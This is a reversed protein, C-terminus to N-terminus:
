QPKLLLNGKKKAFTHAQIRFCSMLKLTVILTKNLWYPFEEEGQIITWGKTDGEREHFRVQEQFSKSHRSSACLKKKIPYLSTKLFAENFFVNLVKGLLFELLNFRAAALM